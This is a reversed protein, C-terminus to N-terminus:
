FSRKISLYVLDCIDVVGDNNFDLSENTTNNIISTRLINMSDEHITPHPDVNDKLGDGDYDVFTSGYKVTFHNGNHNFLISPSISTEFVVGSESENELIIIPAILKNITQQKTGNFVIKGATVNSINGSYNGGIKLVATDKYMKLYGPAINGAVIMTGNNEVAGHNHDCSVVGSVGL